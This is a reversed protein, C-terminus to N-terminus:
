KHHLLKEKPVPALVSDQPGRLLLTTVTKEYDVKALLRPDNARCYEWTAVPYLGPKLDLVAQHAAVQPRRTPRYGYHYEGRCGSYHDAGAREKDVVAKCYDADFKADIKLIQKGAVSGRLRCQHVFLDKDNQIEVGIVHKGADDVQLYGSWKFALWENNGYKAFQKSRKFASFKLTPAEADVITGLSIEPAEEPIGKKKIEEQDMVYIDLLLGAGYDSTLTATAPAGPPSAATTAAPTSMLQLLKDLKGNLSNLQESQEDLRKETADVRQHLDVASSDEASVSMALSLGAAITVISCFRRGFSKKSTM